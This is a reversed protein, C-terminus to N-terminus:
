GQLPFIGFFCAVFSRTSCVRDWALCIFLTYHSLNTYKWTFCFVRNSQQGFLTLTKYSLVQLTCTRQPLWLCLKHMPCRLNVLNGVQQLFCRSLLDACLLVTWNRASAVYMIGPLVFDRQDQRFLFLLLLDQCLLSVTSIFLYFLAFLGKCWEQCHFCITHTQNGSLFIQCKCVFLVVCVGAVVWSMSCLQWGVVFAFFCVYFGCYNQLVMKTERHIRALNYIEHGCCLLDMKGMLLNECSHFILSPLANCAWKLFAVATINGYYLFSSVCSLKMSINLVILLFDIYPGRLWLLRLDM